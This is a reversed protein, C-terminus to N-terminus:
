ERDPPDDGEYEFFESEEHMDYKEALAPDSTLLRGQSDTTVGDAQMQRLEDASERQRVRVYKRPTAHLADWLEHYKPRVDPNLRDALDRPLSAVKVLQQVDVLDKARDPGGSMGSALKLEVLRALGIFKVGDREVPETDAPDPFSVPQPKGSGPYDGTLVFEVKVRTEADRINKSKEFLRVYGRGVLHKHLKALESRTVLVNIDETMRVYGHVGLAMGGIVVYAIGLEDLRTRLKVLTQQLKSTGEFYRGSEALAWRPDQQLRREYGLSTEAASRARSSSPM